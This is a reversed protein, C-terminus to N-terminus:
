QPSQAEPTEPLRQEAKPGPKTKVFKLGIVCLIIGGLFVIKLPSTPEEGTIMAYLVTLAAGIGIWVSYAVSIPIRIMAYGLGAMSLALGAFFVVTPVTKSLGDSLGLATAWVAEFVASILLIVWSM